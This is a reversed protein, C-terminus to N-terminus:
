RFNVISWYFIVLINEGAGWPHCIQHSPLLAQGFIEAKPLKRFQPLCLWAPRMLSHIGYNSLLTQSPRKRIGCWGFKKTKHSLWFHRGFQVCCVPSCCLSDKPYGRELGYLFKYTRGSRVLLSAPEKDAANVSIPTINGQWLPDCLLLIM